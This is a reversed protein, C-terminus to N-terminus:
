GMLLLVMGKSLLRFGEFRVRNGWGWLFRVRQQHGEGRNGVDWSSGCGKDTGKTLRVVCSCFCYGCGRSTSKM